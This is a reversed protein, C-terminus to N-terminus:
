WSSWKEAAGGRCRRSRGVRECHPSDARQRLSRERFRRPSPERDPFDPCQPRICCSTVFTEASSRTSLDAPAAIASNPRRCPASTELAGRRVRITRHAAFSAKCGRIPDRYAASLPTRCARHRDRRTDSRKQRASRAHPRQTSPWEM